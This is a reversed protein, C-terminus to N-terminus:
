APEGLALVVIGKRGTERDSQFFESFALGSGAETVNPLFEGAFRRKQAARGGSLDLLVPDLQDLDVGSTDWCADFDAPVEKATVFSGNLWVRRCGARALAALGDALGDLLRRRHENWGFRDVVEEWTGQHEGLPLRGTGPDFPPIVLV